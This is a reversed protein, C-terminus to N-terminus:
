PKMVKLIKSRVHKNTTLMTYATAVCPLRSTAQLDVAIIESRSALHLLIMNLGSVQTAFNFGSKPIGL